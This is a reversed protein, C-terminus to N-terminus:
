DKRGAGGCNLRSSNPKLPRSEFHPLVCKTVMASIIETWQLQGARKTILDNRIELLVTPVGKLEGHLPIPVEAAHDVRYPQNDGVVLGPIQRLFNLCAQGLGVHMDYLVGCHWPRPAPCSKLVSTYSHICLMAKPRYRRILHTLAKHFPLYYQNIRAERETQSLGRNGPVMTTDSCALILEPSWVPRNLDILLRSYAGLLTPQGLESHVRKAIESVGIDWGIHRLLDEVPLGLTGLSDPLRASAHESVLLLEPPRTPPLISYPETETIM